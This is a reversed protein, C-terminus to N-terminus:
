QVALLTLRLAENVGGWDTPGANNWALVLDLSPIVVLARRGWHGYGGYTDSPADPLLVGGASDTGNVWWTYSYSGAHDAQDSGGGISRQGPIMEAAAGGTRPLSPSLPTGTALAVNAASLVQVGGAWRGGRLYLLGFRALDRTSIAMRGPRDGVGFALFTPDDECGLVDTLLPRLVDDDVTGWSSGYVQLFLTDFFLAMNYDSYDFAAGPAESVGYCSVMNALHWWEMDRDPFGAAANLPDLGPEWSNVRSSLDPILGSEVAALLFHNYFPKVASAIDSRNAPNGWSHVLLGGRVVVGNGGLYADLDGLAAASLGVDAPAATAWSAGPYTPEPGSDTAVASGDANAGADAGADFEVSGDSGPM